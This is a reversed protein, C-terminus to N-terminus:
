GSTVFIQPGTEVRRILSVTINIVPPALPPGVHVVRGALTSALVCSDNLFSLGLASHYRPRQTLEVPQISTMTPVGRQGFVAQGSSTM